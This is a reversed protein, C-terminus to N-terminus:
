PVIFVDAVERLSLLAGVSRSSEPTIEGLALFLIRRVRFVVVPALEGRALLVFDMVGLVIWQAAIKSASLFFLV